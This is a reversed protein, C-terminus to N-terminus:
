KSQCAPKLNRLCKQIDEKKWATTREGIKYPPPFRGSKCGNWWTARSVPILKLVDRLRLFGSHEAIPELIENMRNGKRQYFTLYICALVVKCAYDGTYIVTFLPAYIM